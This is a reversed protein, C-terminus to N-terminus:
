RKLSFHSKFEKTKGNFNYYVLFWYDDATLPEGSYTGDWGNNNKLSTIIKGYRDFIIVNWEPFLNIYPIYWIDNFGDNNPTFFKPYDLIYVKEFYVGCGNKDRFYVIYEGGALHEFLNKNSYSIGDLSFEYDGIGIPTILLSNQNGNFDNIELIAGTAAESPIVTFTKTGACNNGDTLTVTYMGPLNINITQSTNIPSTNWSYSTYGYGADLTINDGRCLIVEETEDEFINVILDFSTIGFCDSGNFIRAFITQNLFVTNVFNLPNPIPNMGALADQASTFYQLQLNAPLDQLIEAGSLTLDFSTFGDKNVDDDCNQQPMPQSLANSSTVLTLNSVSSCGYPSTIRAYITQNISTNQFATTNNIVNVGANADIISTFFDVLLSNDNGTIISTALNLNFLTLGNNDDDCQILTFNGSAPLPAYEVHIIGESFCTPSLQVAVSYTGASSVIYTSATEGSIVVGDKYWQYETANARTADLTLTGGNCLPNNTAILRDPGLNITSKFSNGGLFIASDYLNNGQDAVVLKIHYTTGPIVDSEAKLVVTQGNYNIPSDQGNFSDFYQENAALCVGQGRVTNVKVPINTGPVIALNQYTAISNAEKILFAFGDTYNCQNQSTISTLYQESAFIYDFSIKDTLPIFDFELVSANITNNVDLAMELDQDGLWETSGESLLSINPGPASAAYGTSLVIGNEFPFGSSNSTFYGFSSGNPAGNLTINYVQTCSNDVLADLYQQPTYTDNVQIYQSHMVGPLLLVFLSFYINLQKIM